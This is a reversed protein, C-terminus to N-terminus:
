PKTPTKRRGRYFVLAAALIVVGTGLFAWAEPTVTSAQPPTMDSGAASVPQNTPLTVNGVGFYYQGQSTDGDSVLQVKWKVLYVGQSLAPLKVVLGAHKPDNLDVGGKGLDVQRLGQQDFVQLSSADEAVEEPFVLYVQDPPQALVAGDDPSASTPTVYHASAPALAAGLALIVVLVAAFILRVRLYMEKEKVLDTL